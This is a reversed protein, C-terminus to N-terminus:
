VGQRRRLAALGLGSLALLALSGPEPVAAGGYEVFYGINAGGPLDNWNGGNLHAYDEDGANNPEGGNWHAFGMATGGSLGSWFQVGAEPGDAWVWKGEVAQDTAGIWGDSSLSRIFTNEGLSTITALYGTMGLYTSSLAASRAGAWTNGASVYEYWHGNGGSGVTWQVPAASAVGACSCLAAAVLLKSPFIKM